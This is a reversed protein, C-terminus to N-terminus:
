STNQITPGRKPKQKITVTKCFTKHSKWDKRQCERSCYSVLKCRGCKMLNISDKGKTAGCTVCSYKYRTKKEGMNGIRNIVDLLDRQFELGGPCNQFRRHVDELAPPLEEKGRKGYIQDMRNTARLCKEYYKKADDISGLSPDELTTIALWAYSVENGRNDEHVESVIRKFEKHLTKYDKLQAAAWVCARADRALTYFEDIKLAKTLDKIAKKRNGMAMHFTSRHRLLNTRTLCGGLIGREPNEVHPHNEIYELLTEICGMGVAILMQGHEPDSGLFQALMISLVGTSISHIDHQALRGLLEYDLIKAKREKPYGPPLAVAFNVSRSDLLYAHAIQPCAAGLDGSRALQIGKLFIETAEEYNKAEPDSTKSSYNDERGLKEWDIPQRKKDYWDERSM